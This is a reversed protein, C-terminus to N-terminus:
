CDMIILVTISRKVLNKKYEKLTKLLILVCISIIFAAYWCIIDVCSRHGEEQSKLFYLCTEKKKNQLRSQILESFPAM